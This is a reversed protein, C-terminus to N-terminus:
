SSIASMRERSRPVTFDRMLRPRFRSRFIKSSLPFKEAGGADLCASFSPQLHFVTFIERGQQVRKDIALQRGALHGTDLGMQVFAGGAAGIHVVGQGDPGGEGVRLVCLKGVAKGFADHGADLCLSDGPRLGGGLRLGDGPCFGGVFLFGGAGPQFGQRRQRGAAGDHKQHTGQEGATGFCLRGGSGGIGGRGRLPSQDGAFLGSLFRSGGFGRGCFRVVGGSGGFCLRLSGGGSGGPRLLVLSREFRVRGVDLHLGSVASADGGQGERRLGGGQQRIKSGHLLRIRLGAILQGALVAVDQRFGQGLRVNGEGQVIRVGIGHQDDQLFLCRLVTGRKATSIRQPLSLRMTHGWGGHNERKCDRRSYAISGGQCTGDGQGLM